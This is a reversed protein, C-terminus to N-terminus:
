VHFPKANFLIDFRVFDVPYLLTSRHLFFVLSAFSPRQISGAGISGACNLCLFHKSILALLMVNCRYTKEEKRFFGIARALVCSQENSVTRGWEDPKQEPLFCCIIETAQSEEQASLKSASQCEGL